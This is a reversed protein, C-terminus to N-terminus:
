FRRRDPEIQEPEEETVDLIDYSVFRDAEKAIEYPNSVMRYKMYEKAQKEDKEVVVCDIAMTVDMSIRFQKMIM